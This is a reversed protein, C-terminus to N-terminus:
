PRQISSHVFTESPIAIEVTERVYGHVTGGTYNYYLGIDYLAAITVCFIFLLEFCVTNLSNHVLKQNEM